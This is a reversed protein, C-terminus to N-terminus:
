WCGPAVHAVATQRWIPSFQELPVFQQEPTHPNPFLHAAGVPAVHVVMPSAHAYGPSHQECFQWPALPPRFFPVQM